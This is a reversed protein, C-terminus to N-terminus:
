KNEKIEAYGIGPVIYEKIATNCTIGCSYMAERLSDLVINTRGHGTFVAMMARVFLAEEKSM